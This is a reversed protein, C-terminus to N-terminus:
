LGCSVALDFMEKRKLEKLILQFFFHQNALAQRGRGYNFSFKNEKISPRFPRSCDFFDILWDILNRKISNIQNSKNSNSQRRPSSEREKEKKMLWWCGGVWDFWFLKIQKIPKTSQHINISSHLFFLAAWQLSCRAAFLNMWWDEISSTFTTKSKASEAPGWESWEWILLILKFPSPEGTIIAPILWNDKM